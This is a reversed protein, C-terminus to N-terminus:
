TSTTFFFKKELSEFILATGVFPEKTLRKKYSESKDLFIKQICFSKRLKSGLSKGEFTEISKATGNM